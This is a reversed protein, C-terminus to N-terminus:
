RQQIPNHAETLSLTFNVIARDDGNDSYCFQIGFPQINSEIELKSHFYAHVKLSTEQVPSLVSYLDTDTHRSSCPGVSSQLILIDYTECQKQSKIM